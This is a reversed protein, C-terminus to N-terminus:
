QWVAALVTAAAAPGKEARGTKIHVPAGPEPWFFRVMGWESTSYLRIGKERFLARMSDTPFNWYNMFGASVAAVEPQVRDYFEPVLGTNSGHHPIVLARAQLDQVADMLVSLGYEELDGPLLLMPESRWLLRLVLSMDNEKAATFEAAPHLVELEVGRGLVIRDGAALGRWGPRALTATWDAPDVWDVPTLAQKSCGMRRVDFRELIHALGRLHDSHRHSLLVWDLRPPANRRLHPGVIAEGTDFGPFRMGGGDVLVRRGGPLTLAVSQAQGVDLVEAKLGSQSQSWYDQAMPLVTLTLGMALGALATRRGAGGLLLFGAALMIWYGLMAPWAPLLMLPGGSVAGDMPAVGWAAALGGLQLLREGLPLWPAIFLMVKGALALPMVVFGLVPLWVLSWLPNGPTQGFANLQLPLVALNAFGWLFLLNMVGPGAAFWARRLLQAVPPADSTRFGEKPRAFIRSQQLGHAQLLRLGVIIGTVAAASLQLRLDYVALPDTLIILALALFLGDLLVRERGMLLLAGWFGYMAAARVLTPSAQGLWVYALALAGAVCVAWKVRPATEYIRPCARGALWALVYGFAAVFGVHLGSLALSHALGAWALSDVTSQQLYFRDGFLLAMVIAAGTNQRENGAANEQMNSPVASLGLAKAVRLRAKERLSAWFGTQKDALKAEAKGGMSFARRWVGQRAWNWETDYAYPNSFNRVPKPRLRAQVRQGALPRFDPDGWTWVLGGPVASWSESGPVQIQVDDLVIRLRQDPLGQSFRVQGQVTCKEGQSPWAPVPAPALSHATLVGLGCALLFAAVGRGGSLQAGALLLLGAAALGGPVPWRWAFVGCFFALFFVHWALLQPLAATPRGM